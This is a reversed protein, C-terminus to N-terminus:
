IIRSGVIKAKLTGSRIGGNEDYCDSETCIYLPCKAKIKSNNCSMKTPNTIIYSWISQM